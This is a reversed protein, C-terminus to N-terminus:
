SSSASANGLMTFTGSNSTIGQTATIRNSSNAGTNDLILSSGGTLTIASTNLISGSLSLTLTTGNNALTTSGSYTNAGQFNFAGTGAGQGTGALTLGNASVGSIVGSVIMTGVSNNTWAETAGLAVNTSLTPAGSGSQLTVGGAGITLLNTGGITVSSTSTSLFTLSNISFNQGLVTNLNNAAFYFFVNDASGPLNVGTNSNFSGSSSWNSGLSGTTNWNSNGAAGTWYYNAANAPATIVLALVVALLATATSLSRTPLVSALRTPLKM